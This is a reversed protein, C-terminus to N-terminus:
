GLTRLFELVLRNCEAAHTVPVMHGAGAVVELRSGRLSRAILETHESRILDREGVVVLAPVSAARLRVPDIHPHELMLDVFPLRARARRSVLAMLRLGKRQVTMAARDVAGLGTPDLNAGVVAISALRQPADLVLQLAINGGDSFGFVDAKAIGLEDLVAVVDRGLLPFDWPVAGASSRGHGRTDVAVVTREASFAEIQADLVHLDEGNGHLVVVPPGDGYVEFHIHAGETRVHGKVAPERM